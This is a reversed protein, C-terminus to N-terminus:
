LEKRFIEEYVLKGNLRHSLMLSINCVNIFEQRIEMNFEKELIVERGITIHPIYVRNEIKFDERILKETLETYLKNLVHNEKIGIWYIDKSSGKFSSCRDLMITFKKTKLESIIKIISDIRKSEGIFVLSLHINNISTFTGKLSQTKLKKVYEFIESKVKDHFNIAIFLRM